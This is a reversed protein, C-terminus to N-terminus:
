EVGVPEPQGRRIWNESHQPKQVQDPRSRFRLAGGLFHKPVRREHDVEDDPDGDHYGDDVLQAWARKRSSIGGVATVQPGSEVDTAAAPPQLCSSLLLPQRLAM